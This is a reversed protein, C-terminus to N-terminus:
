LTCVDISTRFQQVYYVSVFDPGREPNLDMLVKQMLRQFVSPANTLGFPTVRFEFLGQPTAFATREMSKQHVRIQWFGAALDLTSFYKCDHLQDLLDDVRPLPFTDAKTVANLNIYDM